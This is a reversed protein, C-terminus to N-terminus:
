LEFKVEEAELSAQSIATLKKHASLFKNRLAGEPLAQIIFAMNCVAGQNHFSDGKKITKRMMKLGNEAFAIFNSECESAMKKTVYDGYKAQQERNWSLVTAM